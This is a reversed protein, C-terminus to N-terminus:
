AARHFRSGQKKLAHSVRLQRWAPESIAIDIVAKEIFPEVRNALVPKKVALKKYLRKEERKMANKLTTTAIEVTDWQKVLRLYM